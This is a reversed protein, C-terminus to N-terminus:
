VGDIEYQEYFYKEKTAKWDCNETCVDRVPDDIKKDIAALDTAPDFFNLV